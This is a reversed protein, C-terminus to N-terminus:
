KLLFQMILFPIVDQNVCLWIHCNSYNGQVTVTSIHSTVSGILNPVGNTANCIYTGENGVTVHAVVITSTISFPTLLNGENTDGSGELGLEEGDPGLLIDVGSGSGVHINILVAESQQEGQFYWEITPLPDASFSCTLRLSDTVNIITPNFGFLLQPPVTCM